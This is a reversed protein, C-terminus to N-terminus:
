VREVKFNVKLKWVIFTLKLQFKKMLEEEQQINQGLM